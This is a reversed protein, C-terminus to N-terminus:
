QPTEFPVVTEDGAPLPKKTARYMEKFAERFANDIGRGLTSDIYFPIYFIVGAAGGANGRGSARRCVLGTELDVLDLRVSVDVDWTAGFGSQDAVAEPPRGAVALSSRIVLDTGLKKSLEQYDALTSPTVQMEGYVDLWRLTGPLEQGALRSRVLEPGILNDDAGKTLTDLVQDGLTRLEDHPYDKDSVRPSIEVPLVAVSEIPCDKSSLGFHSRPIVCGCQLVVVLTAPLLVLLPKKVNGM